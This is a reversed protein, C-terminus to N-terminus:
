TYDLRLLVMEGLLTSDHDIYKPQRLSLTSVANRVDVTVPRWLAACQSSQDGNHVGSGLSWTSLFGGWWGKLTGWIKSIGKGTQGAQQACRAARRQQIYSGLQSGAVRQLRAGAQLVCSTNSRRHGHPSSATCAYRQDAVSIHVDLLLNNQPYLLLAVVPQPLAPYSSSDQTPKSLKHQWWHQWLKM